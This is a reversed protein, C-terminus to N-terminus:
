AITDLLTGLTDSLVKAVKVSAARQQKATRLAVAEAAIDVDAGPESAKSLRTAAGLLQRDAAAIGALPAAFSIM